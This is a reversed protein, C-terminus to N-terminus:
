RIGNKYGLYWDIRQCINEYDRLVFYCYKSKVLKVAWNAQANKLTGVASKLELRLGCYEIYNYDNYRPVDMLLDPYGARLGEAVMRRRNIESRQAENPVAVLYDYREDGTEKLRDKCYKVVQQQLKSESM